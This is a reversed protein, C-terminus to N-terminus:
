TCSNTMFNFGTYFTSIRSRLDEVTGDNKIVAEVRNGTIGKEAAHKSKKRRVEKPLLKLVIGCQGTIEDAENDFRVDDTVVPGEESSVRNRWAKIWLDQGILDRGWETGITEMAHRPTKGCLHSCPQEKLDGEIKREVMDVDLGVETYFARLMAKLPGAFKVLTFGHEDILEQAAESKGSGAEGNLGIVQTAM